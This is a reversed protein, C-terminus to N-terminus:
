RFTGNQLGFRRDIKRGSYVAVRPNLGSCVLPFSSSCSDCSSAFFQSSKLFSVCFSILQVHHNQKEIQFSLKPEKSKLVKVTRFKGGIGQM